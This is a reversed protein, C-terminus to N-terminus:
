IPHLPMQNSLRRHCEFHYRVLLFGVFEEHDCKYVFARNAQNGNHSYPPFNFVSDAYFTKGDDDSFFVTTVKVHQGSPWLEYGVAAIGFLCLIIGTAMGGIKSSDIKELSTM